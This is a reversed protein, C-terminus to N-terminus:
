MRAKRGLSDGQMAVIFGDFLQGYSDLGADTVDHQVRHDLDVSEVLDGTGGTDDLINKNPHGDAHFGVGVLEDGGGVLILLETQRQDAARRHGRHPAHERGVVQTQDSEVTVDPRLDEIDRAELQGGVPHDAQKAIDDGLETDVLCALELRDIEATSEANRVQRM